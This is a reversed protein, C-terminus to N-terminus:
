RPPTLKIVAIAKPRSHNPRLRKFLGLTQTKALHLARAHGFKALQPRANASHRPLGPRPGRPRARDGDFTVDTIRSNEIARHARVNQAFFKASMAHSAVTVRQSATNVEYRELASKAEVLHETGSHPPIM